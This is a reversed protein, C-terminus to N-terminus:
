AAIALFCIALAIMRTAFLTKKMPIASFPFVNNRLLLPSFHFVSTSKKWRVFDSAAAPISQPACAGRTDREAGEGFAKEESLGNVSQRLADSGKFIGRPSARERKRESMEPSSRM